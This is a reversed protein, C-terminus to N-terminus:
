KFEYPQPRHLLPRIYLHMGISHFVSSQIGARRKANSRASMALAQSPVIALRRVHKMLTRTGPGVPIGKGARM